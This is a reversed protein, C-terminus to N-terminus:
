LEDNETEQRPRLHGLFEFQPELLQPHQQLSEVGLLLLWRKFASAEIVGADCSLVM